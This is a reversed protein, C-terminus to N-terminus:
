IIEAIIELTDAMMRELSVVDASRSPRSVSQGDPFQLVTIARVPEDSRGRWERALRRIRRKLPNAAM